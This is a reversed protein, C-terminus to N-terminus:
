VKDTVDVFKFDKQAYVAVTGEDGPDSFFQQVQLQVTLTSASASILVFKSISSVVPVLTDICSAEDLVSVQVTAATRNANTAAILSITAGAVPALPTVIGSRMTLAGSPMVSIDASDTVDVKLQEVPDDPDIFTAEAHLKATEYVTPTCGNPSLRRLENSDISLSLSPHFITLILMQSLPGLSVTVNVADNRPQALAGKSLYLDCGYSTKLVSDADPSICSYGATSPAIRSVGASASPFDSVQLTLM